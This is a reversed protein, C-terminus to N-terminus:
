TLSIVSIKRYEPGTKKLTSKFLVLEKFVSLVSFNKHEQKLYKKLEAPVKSEKKIIALTLHPSFKRKEPPFGNDLALLEVAQVIEELPTNDCKMGAWIVSPKDPSPFAGIGEIHYATKKLGSLVQFKKILIDTKDAEVSGLFKITIHYQEQGVIKLISSFKQLFVNCAKLSNMVIEDDVPLAIFLRHPTSEM